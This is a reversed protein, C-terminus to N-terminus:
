IAGSRGKRFSESNDLRNREAQEREVNARSVWLWFLISSGLILGGGVAGMVTNDLAAAFLNISVGIGLAIAGASFLGRVSTSFTLGSVSRTTMHDGTEPMNIADSLGKPSQIEGHLAGIIGSSDAVNLRFNNRSRFALVASNESARLCGPTEIWMNGPTTASAAGIVKSAGQHVDVM